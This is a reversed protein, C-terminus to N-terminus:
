EYELGSNEIISVGLGLLLYTPYICGLEGTSNAFILYSVLLSLSFACTVKDISRKKIFFCILSVYFIAWILVGIVGRELILTMLVGELGYLDKDIKMDTGVGLVSTCFGMGNGLLLNDNNLYSFVSVYQLQRMGISSGTGDGEESFISFVSAFINEISPSFSLLFLSLPLFYFIYKILKDKEGVFFSFVTIAFFSTVIVTRSGCFLIGFVCCVLVGIFDRRPVELKKDLYIFLLFVLLCLYGYDFPHLFMANVKYRAAEYYFSDDFGLQGLFSAQKFILNIVGFFTLVYISLPVVHIILSMDTTKKVLVYGFCIILIKSVVNEVFVSRILASSCIFPSYFIQIIIGVILLLVPYCLFSKKLSFLHTNLSRFESFLFFLPVITAMRGYGTIPISVASLCIYSVLLVMFKVQRDIFFFSICSLFLLLQAIIAM